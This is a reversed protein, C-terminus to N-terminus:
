ILSTTENCASFGYSPACIQIQSTWLLMSLLTMIPSVEKSLAIPRQDLVQTLTEDATCYVHDISYIHLIM